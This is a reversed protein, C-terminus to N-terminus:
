EENLFKLHLWDEWEEDDPLPTKDRIKQIKRNLRKEQREIEYHKAAQAYWEVTGRRGDVTELAM